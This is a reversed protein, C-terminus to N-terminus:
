ATWLRDRQKTRDLANLAIEFETRAQNLRDHARQRTRADIDPIKTGPPIM